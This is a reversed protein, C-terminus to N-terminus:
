GQRSQVLVRGAVYGVAAGAAAGLGIGAAAPLAVYLIGLVLLLIKPYTGAPLSFGGAGWMLTWWDFRYAVWLGAAGGIWGGITAIGVVRQHSRWDM